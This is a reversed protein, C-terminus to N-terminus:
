EVSFLGNPLNKRRKLSIVDITTTSILSDSAYYNRTLSDALYFGTLCEGGKIIGAMEQTEDFYEYSLVRTTDRNTSVAKVVREICKSYYLTPLSDKFPTIKWLDGEKVPTEYDSPNGMKGYFKFINNDAYSAPLRKGTKLDTVKIRNGNRITETNSLSSKTTIVSKDPGAQLISQKMEITMVKPISVTIKMVIESTDPFDAKAQNKLLENVDLRTTNDAPCIKVYSSSSAVKSSSSNKAVSSSSAVVSSSSIKVSSSFKEKSSSSASVASKAVSSSSAVVSSSSIKVSSSFKEKSSSSASVASSSTAQVSFSSLDISSSLTVSSSSQAVTASSDAVVSSSSEAQSSLNVLEEPATSIKGDEDCAALFALTLSFVCLSSKNM